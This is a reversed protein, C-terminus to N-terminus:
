LLIRGKGPIGINGGFGGLCFARHWAHARMGILLYRAGGPGGRGPCGNKQNQPEREKSLSLGLVKKRLNRTTTTTLRSLRRVTEDLRVIVAVVIEQIESTNTQAQNHEPM